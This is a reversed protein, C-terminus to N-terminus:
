VARCTEFGAFVESFSFIFTSAVPEGSGLVPILYRYPSRKKNLYSFFVVSLVNVVLLAGAWLLDLQPQRHTLGRFQFVGAGVLVRRAPQRAHFETHAVVDNFTNLSEFVFPSFLVWPIEWLANTLAYLADVGGLRRPLDIRSRGKNEAAPVGSELTEVLASRTFGSRPARSSISPEWSSCARVSGVGGWVLATVPRFSGSRAELPRASSAAPIKQPQGVASSISM